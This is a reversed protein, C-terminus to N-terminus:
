RRYIFEVYCLTVLTISDRVVCLHPKTFIDTIIITGHPLFTSLTTLKSLKLKTKKDKDNKTQYINLVIHQNKNWKKAQNKNKSEWHGKIKQESFHKRNLEDPMFIALFTTSKCM